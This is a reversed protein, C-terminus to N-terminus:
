REKVEMKIPQILDMVVPIAAVVIAILYITMLYLGANSVKFVLGVIFLVIGIVIMFVKWFHFAMGKVDPCPIGLMAMFSGPISAFAVLRVALSTNGDIISGALTITAICAALTGLFAVSLVHVLRAQKLKTAMMFMAIFATGGTLAVMSLIGAPVAGFSSGFSSLVGLQKTAFIIIVPFLSWSLIRFYASVVRAPPTDDVHRPEPIAPEPKENPLRPRTFLRGMMYVGVALLAIALALFTYPCPAFAFKDTVSILVAGSVGLVSIIRGGDDMGFVQRTWADIRAPHLLLYMWAAFGAVLVVSYPTKQVLLGGFAALLPSITAIIQWGARTRTTLFHGGIGMVIVTALAVLGLVILDLESGANGSLSAVAIIISTISVYLGAYVLLFLAVKNVFNISSM